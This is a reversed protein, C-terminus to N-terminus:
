RGEPKPKPWWPAVLKGHETCYFLHHPVPDAYTGVTFQFPVELVLWGNADMAKPTAEGALTLSHECDKFDCRVESKVSSAM